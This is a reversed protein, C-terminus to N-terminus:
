THLYTTLGVHKGTVACSVPDVIIASLRMCRKPPILYTSERSIYSEGRMSFRRRGRGNEATCELWTRRPIASMKHKM